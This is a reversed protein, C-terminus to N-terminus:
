LLWCAYNCDADRVHNKDNDYKTDLDMLIEKKMKKTMNTDKEQVKLATDRSHCFILILLSVTVDNEALLIKMFDVFFCLGANVIWSPTPIM